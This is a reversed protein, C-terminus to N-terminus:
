VRARGMPVTFRLETGTDTSVLTMDGSLEAIREKLTLPGGNMRNLAELNYTGQFPFGRGDDAVRLRVTGNAAAVDVDIVSADAHRAANVVSEQALRYTAEAADSPLDDVGAAQVKVHIEWQREVRRSLEDLRERLGMEVPVVPRGTPRLRTVFSRTELEDRELQKQVDALRQRGAAADRDLLRRAAELQLAAGAQTQLLSDHLDRALRVREDVAAADRLRDQWYHSELRTLTLWAVVEGLVLDDLRMRQRDLCFMRGRVLEGDLPWSQVASMNFRARLAENVPRCRRRGFGRSKILVV